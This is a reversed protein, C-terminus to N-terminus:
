KKWKSFIGFDSILNTWNSKIEKKKEVASVQDFLRYGKEYGFLVNNEQPM